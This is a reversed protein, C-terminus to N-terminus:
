STVKIIDDFHYTTWDDQGRLEVSVGKFNEASKDPWKVCVYPGYQVARQLNDDYDCDVEDIGTIVGPKQTPWAPHDPDEWYTVWDGVALEVPPVSGDVYKDM